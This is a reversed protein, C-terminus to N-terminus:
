RSQNRTKRKRPRVSGQNRAKPNEHGVQSTELRNEHSTEHKRTKQTLQSQIEHKRPQRKRSVNRVHGKTDEKRPQVVSYVNQAQAGHLDVSPIRDTVVGGGTEIPGSSRQVSTATRGLVAPALHGVTSRGASARGRFVRPARVPFGATEVAAPHCRSSACRLFAPVIAISEESGRHRRRPVVVAM